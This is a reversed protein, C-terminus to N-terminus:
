EDNGGLYRMGIPTCSNWEEDGKRGIDVILDGNSNFIRYNFDRYITDGNDDTRAIGEMADSFSMDQFYRRVSDGISRNYNRANRVLSWLQRNGYNGDYYHFFIHSEDDGYHNTMQQVSKSPYIDKMHHRSSTRIVLTGNGSESWRDIAYTTKDGLERISQTRNSRIRLPISDRFCLLISYSGQWSDKALSDGAKDLGNQIEILRKEPSSYDDWNIEYKM